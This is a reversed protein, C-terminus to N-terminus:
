CRQFTQNIPATHPLHHGIGDPSPRTRTCLWRGGAPVRGTQLSRSLQSAVPERRSPAHGPRGRAWGSSVRGRDLPADWVARLGAPAAVAASRLLPTVLGLRGPHPTQARGLKGEGGRETTTVWQLEPEPQQPQPRATLRSCARLQHEPETSEREAHSPSAAARPAASGRVGRRAITRGSSAEMGRRRQSPDKIWPRRPAAGVPCAPPLCRGRM